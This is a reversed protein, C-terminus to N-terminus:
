GAFGLTESSVGPNGGHRSSNAVSGEYALLIVVPFM